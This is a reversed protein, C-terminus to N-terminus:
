LRWGKSNSEYLWRYTFLTESQCWTQHIRWGNRTQCTCKDVKCLRSKVEAGHTICVGGQVAFNNCCIRGTETEEGGRVKREFFNCKKGHAGHHKICVGRNVITNTCNPASCLRGHRKCVGVKRNRNTPVIPRRARRRTNRWALERSQPLLQHPSPPHYYNTKLLIKTM